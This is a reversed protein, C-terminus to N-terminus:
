YPGHPVCAGKARRAEVKAEEALAKALRCAPGRLADAYLAFRCAQKAPRARAARGSMCETPYPLTESSPLLMRRQAADLSQCTIPLQVRREKDVSEASDSEV